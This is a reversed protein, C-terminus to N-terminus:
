PKAYYDAFARTYSREKKQPMIQFPTSVYLRAGDNEPTFNTPAESPLRSKLPSLPAISPRNIPRYLAISSSHILMLSIVTTKM